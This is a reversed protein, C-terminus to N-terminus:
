TAASVIGKEEQKQKDARIWAVGLAFLIDMGPAVNIIDM